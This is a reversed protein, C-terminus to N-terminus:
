SEETPPTNPVAWVALGAVVTAVAITVWETTTLVGDDTAAVFSGGFALVAATISKAIERM